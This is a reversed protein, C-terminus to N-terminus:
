VHGTAVVNTLWASYWNRELERQAQALSILRRCVLDRLIHDTQVKEYFGTGRLAAPWINAEDNAGGLDLPVLYDLVFKRQQSAATYGYEDYVATQEAAPIGRNPGHEPLNCAVNADSTTVAGPTLASKPLSVGGGILPMQFDPLQVGALDPGSGTQGPVVPALAAASGPGGSGSCGAILGACTLVAALIALVAPGRAPRGARRGSVARIM